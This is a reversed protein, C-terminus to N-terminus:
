TSHSRRLRCIVVLDSRDPHRTLTLGAQVLYPTPPMRYDRGYAVGCFGNREAQELEWLMRWLKSDRKRGERGITRRWTRDDIHEALSRDNWKRWRTRTKLDFRGEALELIHEDSALCPSIRAMRRAARNGQARRLPVIKRPAKDSSTRVRRRDKEYSLRKKEQPTRRRKTM